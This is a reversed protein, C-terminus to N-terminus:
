KPVGQEKKDNKARMERRKAYYAEATMWNLYGSTILHVMFFTNAISCYNLAGLKFEVNMKNTLSLGNRIGETYSIVKFIQPEGMANVIYSEYLIDKDLNASVRGTLVTETLVIQEGINPLQRLMEPKDLRTGYKSVESNEPRGQKLSNYRVFHNSLYKEAPIYVTTEKM